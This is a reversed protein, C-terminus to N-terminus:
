HEKLITTGTLPDDAELQREFDAALEQSRSVCERWVKKREAAQMRTFDSRDPIKGGPLSAVFESGPSLLVLNDLDPARHRRWRLFKDFWGITLDNRFHPYLILRHDRMTNLDFHYDIIGGDWYQGPPAGPIDREGSLIFPISGSAHLAKAVTDERLPVQLTAFDDFAMLPAADSSFMVRQFQSGLLPRHLTNSLAAGGMGLMLLAANRASNLGRGRATVIYSHLAAHQTIAKAGDEQLINGLMRTSAHSIEQVRPKASYEWNVYVDEFRQIAAVPDPQALCAHRWSGVSSGIAQLPTERDRLLFDGFLIRDLHGLILWKPGGSAGVLLDIHKGQWGYERLLRAAKHGLLINLPRSSM